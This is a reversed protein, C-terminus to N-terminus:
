ARALVSRQDQFANSETSAPINVHGVDWRKGLDKGTVQMRQVTEIHSDIGIAEAALKRALAPIEKLTLQEPNAKM